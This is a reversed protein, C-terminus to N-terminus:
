ILDTPSFVQWKNKLYDTFGIVPRSRCILSLEQGTKTLLAKGIYLENDTDKPLFLYLSKEYHHVTITKPLCKRTFGSPNFQVLGISELHILNDFTINQYLYINDDFNLILPTTVNEFVCCFGCLATFIEADNKDLDGLINITRKSYSGPKNSEEALLRAWLEQMESDSIIRSKDFFNTIWDNNIKSADANETLHPIAQKTIDEINKQRQAEEDIWRRVARRHLDTVQIEGKATIIAADAKAEAVRRIQWPEFIGVIANSVKEILTKAAESLDGLNVLANPTKEPM